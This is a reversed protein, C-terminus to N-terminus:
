YNRFEECAKYYDEPVGIDIFYGECIFAGLKKERSINQLVDEEFSFKGEPMDRCVAKNILYIGGNIFGEATPKKERFEKIMSNEITVTGYRYFNKLLKVAVMIDCPSEKVKQYMQELPVDFFTDGNVVFVYDDNCMELAKKIAGGTGLPTDEISYYLPRGKYAGGYYGIIEESKYGVAMVIRDVGKNVLDDLLYTLFPKGAVPAMPKPVNQVIHSLRTGFGGALVICELM